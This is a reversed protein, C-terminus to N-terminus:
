KGKASKESTNKTTGETFARLSNKGEFQKNSNEKEVPQESSRCEPV